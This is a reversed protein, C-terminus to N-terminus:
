PTATCTTPVRRGVTWTAQKGKGRLEYRGSSYIFGSGSRRQQLVLPEKDQSTILAEGEPFSAWFQTGDACTYHAQPIKSAGTGCGSLVAAALIGLPVFKSIM